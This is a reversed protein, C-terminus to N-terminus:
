QRHTPCPKRGIIGHNRIGLTEREAIDTNMAAITEVSDPCGFADLLHM